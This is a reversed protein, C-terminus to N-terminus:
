EGSFRRRPEKKWSLCVFKNRMDGPQPCFKITKIYQNKLLGSFPFMANDGDKLESHRRDKYVITGKEARIPKDTKAIRNLVGTNIRASEIPQLLDQGDAFGITPSRYTSQSPVINESFQAATLM